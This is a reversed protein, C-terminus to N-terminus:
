NLESKLVDFITKGETTEVSHPKALNIRALHRGTEDKWEELIECSTEDYIPLDTELVPEFNDFLVVEKDEIIHQNGEADFFTCKLIWPWEYDVVKEIKLRLTPM